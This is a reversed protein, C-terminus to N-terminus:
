EPLIVSEDEPKESTQIEVGAAEADQKALDIYAEKNDRYHQQAEWMNANYHLKQQQVMSNQTLEGNAFVRDEYSLDGEPDDSQAIQERLNKARQSVEEARTLGDAWVEHRQRLRVAEKEIEEYNPNPLESM